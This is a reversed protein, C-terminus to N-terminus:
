SYKGRHSKLLLRIALSFRQKRKKSEDRLLNTHFLHERISDNADTRFVPSQESEADQYITHLMPPFAHERQKM